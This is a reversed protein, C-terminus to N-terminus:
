DHQYEGLRAWQTQHLVELPQFRQKYNMKTSDQVWFGLYLYPKESIQARSIHDLIMYTGLSRSQQKPAFFSYVMSPGNALQDILASALLEGEANRYDVLETAVVTDEILESFDGQDMDDMGGSQHRDCLYKSILSYHEDDAIPPNVERTLDQNKALIRKMNKSPTFEDVLVRSAKCADCTQCAPRYAISQARRFGVETLADNLKRGDSKHLYTFLKTEDRNPLYPCPAAATVFFRLQKPLLPFTM